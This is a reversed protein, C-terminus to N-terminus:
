GVQAIPALSTQKLIKERQFLRINLLHDILSQNSVSPSQVQPLRLIDDSAKLEKPSPVSRNSLPELVTRHSAPESKPTTQGIRQPYQAVQAKAQLFPYATTIPSM